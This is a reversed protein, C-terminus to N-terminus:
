NDNAIVGTINELYTAAEGQKLGYLYAILSIVDSGSEGIAYDIWQGTNLNIMFSGINKDLRTPNLPVWFAGRRKGQPLIQPILTFLIPAIAENLKKFRLNVTM